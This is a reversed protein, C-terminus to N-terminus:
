PLELGTPMLSQPAIRKIATSNQRGTKPWGALHETDLDRWINRKLM